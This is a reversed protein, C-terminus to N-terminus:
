FASKATCVETDLLLDKYINLFCRIQALEAWSWAYITRTLNIQARSLQSRIRKAQYADKLLTYHLLTLIRLWTRPQSWSVLSSDCSVTISISYCCNWKRKINMENTNNDKLSKFLVYHCIEEKCESFLMFYHNWWCCSEHVVENRTLPSPGLSLHM